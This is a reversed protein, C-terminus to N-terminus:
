QDIYIKEFLFGFESSSEKIQTELPVITIFLSSQEVLQNLHEQDLEFTVNLLERRPEGSASQPLISIYGLFASHDIPTKADANPYNVFVSLFAGDAGDLSIGDINIYYAQSKGTAELQDAVTGQLEIAVTHPETGVRQKTQMSTLESGEVVADIPPAMPPSCAAVLLVVLLQWRM